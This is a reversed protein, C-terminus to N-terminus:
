VIYIREYTSAGAEPGRSMDTNIGTVVTIVCKCRNISGCTTVPIHLAAKYKATELQHDNLFTIRLIAIITVPMNYQLLQSYDIISIRTQSIESEDVIM